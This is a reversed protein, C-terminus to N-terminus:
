RVAGCPSPFSCFSVPSRSGPSCVPGVGRWGSALSRLWVLRPLWGPHSPGDFTAGVIGLTLAEKWGGVVGPLDVLLLLGDFPLIFIMLLIGRQPRNVIMVATTVFVVSFVALAGIMILVNM